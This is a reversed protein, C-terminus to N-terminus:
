NYRPPGLVQRVKRVLLTPTFPKALYAVGAQLVGRHAIVEGSYGSVYLVKMEPRAPRLRDAVDKGTMDPMIVDTLLLDIRAPYEKAEALASSGSPAELVQYGYSALVGTILRRVETQDEVVLVTETGGLETDFPEEAQRAVVGIEVRPLYISFTTGRGPESQVDIFGESQQVIGYVMSLGLGTGHERGKTTFFPEFIHQRTEESMGVGTDCVELLVAPKGFLTGNERAPKQMPDVNATRFTLKGGQPM